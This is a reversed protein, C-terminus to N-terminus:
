VSRKAKLILGGATLAAVAALVAMVLIPSGTSALPSDDQDEGDASADNTASEDQNTDATDPAVASEASSPQKETDTGTGASPSSADSNNQADDTADQEHAHVLQLASLAKDLEEAAATVLPQQQSGFTTNDRLSLAEEYASTLVELSEATYTDTKTLASAAQDISPQLASADLASPATYMAAYEPVMRQALADYMKSFLRPQFNTIGFGAASLNMTRYELNDSDVAGQAFTWDQTAALDAGAGTDSTDLASGTLYNFRTGDKRNWATIVLSTSHFPNRGVGAYSYGAVPKDSSVTEGADNVSYIPQGEADLPYGDPGWINATVAAMSDRDTYSGIRSERYWANGTTATPHILLEAGSAAYFRGLEPYFHGDRCINVGAKLASGDKGKWQPMEFMLPTDGPVSWVTEESGARHMKQYSETHGDPFCVAASNYVKNTGGDNVPGGEPMEALGFVIYMGLEKAKAAMRQVSEGRTTDGDAGVVKEALLVQMYDDSAALQRNVEANSSHADASGKPDTSDYGTLITEPFVLLDIGKEHAIDAYDLMMQTNATKDAWVASVNAVAATPGDSSGFSYRLSEGSEQRDALEGYWKAYYDPHFDNAVKTTSPVSVRLARDNTLLGATGVAITGDQALGAAYTTGGTLIVSGGPFDYARSGDAATPGDPGVLDASAIVMGDRSSISELRNRYYWEWGKGDKVGDNDIDTYSRSTATPNVLLGVGSAAYYREIEPNAYTDYCISLGMLGWPTQLIVPTSGPTAWSGEVPAIKQYSSVQGEPSIAFASNYAHDDDGPIRESTGFVVWMGYGKAAQAIEQTIPSATTEAQSVAMRYAQSEPDSSSVYGTLAMEPFVIMKVACDAAQKMIELMHEKNAQKDGWVPAFNVVALEGAAITGKTVANANMAIASSSYTDAFAANTGIGSVGLSTCLTLAGAAAM